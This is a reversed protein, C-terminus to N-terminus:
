PIRFVIANAPIIGEHGEIIYHVNREVRRQANYTDTIFMVTQAYIPLDNLDHVSTDGVVVYIPTATGQRAIVQNIQRGIIVNDVSFAIAINSNHGWAVFYTFYAQFTLIAFFSVALAPLWASYIYKKLWRYM